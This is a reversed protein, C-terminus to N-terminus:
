PRWYQILWFQVLFDSISLHWHAFKAVVKYSARFAENRRWVTQTHSHTMKLIHIHAGISKNTGNPLCYFRLSHRIAYNVHSM